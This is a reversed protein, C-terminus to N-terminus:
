LERGDKLFYKTKCNVKLIDKSKEDEIIFIVNEPPLINIMDRIITEEGKMVYAVFATKGKTTKVVAVYPYQAPNYDSVKDQLHKCFFDLFRLTREKELPSIRSYIPIYTNGDQEILLSKILRKIKPEPYPHVLEKIHEIKVCGWKYVFQEIEKEPCYILM